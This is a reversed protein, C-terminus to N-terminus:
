FYKKYECFYNVRLYRLNARFSPVKVCPERSGPFRSTEWSQFVELRCSQGKGWPVVGMAMSRSSWRPHAAGALNPWIRGSGAARCLCVVIVCQLALPGAVMPLCPPFSLNSCSGLKLKLIMSEFSASYSSGDLPFQPVVHRLQTLGFTHIMETLGVLVMGGTKHSHAAGGAQLWVFGHRQLKIRNFM